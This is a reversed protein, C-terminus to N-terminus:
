LFPLEFTNYVFCVSCSAKANRVVNSLMTIPRLFSSRGVVKEFIRWFVVEDQVDGAYVIQCAGPDCEDVAM